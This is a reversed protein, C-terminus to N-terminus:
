RPRLVVICCNDLRALFPLTAEGSPTSYGNGKLIWIHLIIVAYAVSGNFFLEFDPKNM